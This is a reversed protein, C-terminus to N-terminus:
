LRLDVLADVREGGLVTVQIRRRHLEQQSVALSQRCIQPERGFMMAPDPMGVKYLTSEPLGLPSGLDDAPKGPLGARDAKYPGYEVPGEAPHRPTAM